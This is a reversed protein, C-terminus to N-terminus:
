KSIWSIHRKFIIEILVSSSIGLVGIIIMGLIVRSIDILTYNLWIYYGIGQKSSSMEAVVLGLWAGSMGLKAGTYLSPLIAHFVTKIISLKSLHLVHFLDIFDQNINSIGDLTNIYIPFFSSIVIIFIISMYEYKFLLIAIPLWAANPIPRILELVPYILMKVLAIKQTLIAFTVGLIISIGFGIYVRKISEFIDILLEKNKIEVSIVKIIDNLNPINKANIFNCTNLSLIFFVIIMMIIIQTVIKFLLNIRSNKKINKMQITKRIM